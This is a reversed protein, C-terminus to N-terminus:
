RITVFATIKDGSTIREAKRVAAKIAFLYSNTKRDPFLSTEWETRGIRVRIPVAGWGLRSTAFRVKIEASQKASLNAFHWGGTGPYLWVTTRVKYQAQSSVDRRM